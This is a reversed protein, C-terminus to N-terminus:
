VQIETLGRFGFRPQAPHNAWPIRHIQILVEGSRTTFFQTVHREQEQEEQEFRQTQWTEHACVDRPNWLILSAIVLVSVVILIEIFKRFTKIKM